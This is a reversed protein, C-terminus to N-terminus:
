APYKIVSKATKTINMKAKYYESFDKHVDLHDPEIPLLVAINPSYKCDWLQFSSLEFIVIDNPKIKDLIDLAPTGINGVLHVTKKTQNSSNELKIAENLISYIMSSVTGKGKTGTVGIIKAPCKAFFENTSSWIKLNKAFKNPNIGPSRIVTFENPIQNINPYKPNNDDFFRCQGFKSFYRWAAKGELGTGAIAYKKTKLM